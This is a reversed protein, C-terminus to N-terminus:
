HPSMQRLTLIKALLPRKVFHCAKHLDIHKNPREGQKDGTTYQTRVVLKIVAILRRV